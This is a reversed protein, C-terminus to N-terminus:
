TMRAKALRQVKDSPPSWGTLAKAAGYITPLGFLFVSPAEDRMIAMMRHYDKLRAAQNVTSRAAVFLKEYEANYWFSRHSAKTFWVTAFDADGLSYWGVMNMPGLNQADIMKSFVGQEVINVKTKVGIAGFMAACVNCIDVDALYKGSRTTISTSFGNGYGAEKLLAKAKEPDYPYPKLHSNFGFTNSTLIQGQLVAGEGLLLKSLIEEKNIAYNLAQRVRKDSFPPKRCDFSLLLGVTSQASRIAAHASKRVSAQLDIPVEEIIQAEGALLASVRTSGDPITRMLLKATPPKGGWYRDFAHLEYHDGPVWKAFMFPGTGIPHTTMGQRGVREVYHSPEIAIDSLGNVLTPFPGKTHIRVTHDDVIETSDIRSIRAKLGYLSNPALVYDLTFKVDTATFPAGDHFVVGPRLDFHWTTDDLATWRQALGPILHWMDDRLVLPTMTQMTLNEAAFSSVGTALSDPMGQVGIVLTDSAASAEAQPLITALSAAGVGVLLNRRSFAPLFTRM